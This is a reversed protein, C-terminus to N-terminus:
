LNFEDEEASRGMLRQRTMRNRYYSKLRLWITM